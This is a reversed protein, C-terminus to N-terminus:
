LCEVLLDPDKQLALHQLKALVAGIDADVWTEEETLPATLLQEVTTVERVPDTASALHRGSEVEHRWWKRVKSYQFAIAQGFESTYTQSAKVDGKIGTVAKGVAVCLPKCEYLEWGTVQLDAIQEMDKCNTYLFTPKVNDSMFWRMQIAIKWVCYDNMIDAMRPHESLLSSQPQELIFICGKIILLYLLLAVRSVMKNAQQVDSRLTNGLPNFISRETQTRCLWVWSSCVPALVSIGSARLRLCFRLFLIFGDIELLDQFLPDDDREISLCVYNKWHDVMAKYAHM